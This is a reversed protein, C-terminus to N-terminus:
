LTIFTQVNKSVHKGRSLSLGSETESELCLDYGDMMYWRINVYFLWFVVIVMLWTNFHVVHM